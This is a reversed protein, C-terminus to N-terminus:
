APCDFLVEPSLDKIELIVQRFKRRDAMPEPGWGGNSKTDAYFTWEIDQMHLAADVIQTAYGGNRLKDRVIQELESSIGRANRVDVDELGDATHRTLKGKQAATSITSADAGVERIKPKLHARTLVHGANRTHCHIVRGLDPITIRYHVEGDSMNFVGGYKWCSRSALIADLTPAGQTKREVKNQLVEEAEHDLELERKKQAQLDKFNPM